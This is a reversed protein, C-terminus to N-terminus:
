EEGEFAPCGERERCGDNCFSVPAKDAHEDKPCTVYSEEPDFTPLENEETALNVPPKKALAAYRAKVLETLADQVGLKGAKEWVATGINKAEIKDKAESLEKKAQTLFTTPDSKPLPAPEHVEADPDDVSDKDIPICFTQFFFYKHGISLAKNCSKDGSDMGEGIVVSKISSGDDAFLEYEITLVTYTLVGGKLTPREERKMDLVRTVSFMGHKALLPNLANYVADIGRYMFGQQLNKTDKKIADLEAMVKPIQTYIKGASEKAM